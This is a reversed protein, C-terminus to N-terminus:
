AAYVITLKVYGNGPNSGALAEAQVRSGAADLGIAVMCNGGGGGRGVRTLEADISLSAMVNDGGAGGWYGGGGGGGPTSAAPIVNPLSAQMAAAGGRGFGGVGDAGQKGFGGGGGGYASVPPSWVPSSANTPTTAALHGPEPLAGLASNDAGAASGRNGAEKSAAVDGASGGGAYSGPHGTAAQQAFRVQADDQMAEVAFGAGGPGAKPAPLGVSSSFNVKLLGAACGAEGSSGLCVGNSLCVSGAGGGGGGAAAYWVTSLAGPDPGSLLATYGGGSGAMSGMVPAAPEHAAGGVLIYLEEGGKFVAELNKVVLTGGLGGKTTPSCEGETCRFGSGGHGGALEASM